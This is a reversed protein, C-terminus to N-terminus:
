LYAGAQVKWMQAYKGNAALLEAHTGQEAIHGDELMIIRDALRTTSLRHSIFIVTKDESAELMSHNLQYEAIPDLAASPEDLIILGADKYFVRSIALKQSEGGSLNIGDDHFESTLETELGRPMENLKSSFGANNLAWLTRSNIAETNKNIKGNVEETDNDGMIVNEIVTGAFIRYDQFVTGISSRYKSIDYKKIDTGFVKICGNSTDYLRMILKILTTKGAGNYGVLALKEGPKISFSVNDIVSQTGSGYSFNVEKLDVDMAGSKVTLKSTSVISPKYDLFDRIKQVYLSTESAYPYTDAFTGMGNKLSGSSNYLIAVSSYSIDHLFAAKFVLYSIYVVDSIFDNAVYRRLFGLLFKRKAFKMDTNYIDENAKEFDKFLIDSVEPNLRIEKAYDQLYFVRNVYDRKREYPNRTIRLKYNIKNYMQNFVFSLAFSILVFLISIADKMAFYIGSTILITVASAINKLFEMVRDVQKDVEKVALVFNNYYEPDDYCELDIQQAKEYLMLRVRQYVRPRGTEAWLDGATVTFVMGLTVLAALLLVYFAVKEFPYGFEAAELVFGICVIHEFFISVRNRIADLIASIVYAPAAKFCLKIMFWNNNFVTKVNQKIKKNQEKQM